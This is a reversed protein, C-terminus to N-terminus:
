SQMSEIIQELEPLFSVALHCNQLVLWTDTKRYEQIIKKAKEGQGKGLSIPYPVKNKEEGAKKIAEMPDNGPTLLLLLPTHVKSENFIESIQFIIPQVFFPGLSKLVYRRISATTLEPKLVRMLPIWAFYNLTSQYPEPLANFVHEKEANMFNRWADGNKTIEDLLQEFCEFATLTELGTWMAETFTAPDPNPEHAYIQMGRPLLGTLTYNLLDENIKIREDDKQNIFKGVM